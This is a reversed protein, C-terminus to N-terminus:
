REARALGSVGGQGTAFGGGDDFTAQRQQRRREIRRAQATDGGFRGAIQEQRTIVDESAGAGALPNMLESAATLQAFGTQAEDATVGKQALDIATNEALGGFGTRKAAGSLQAAAFKRELIPQALDPNLWYAVLDGPGVGWDALADRVDQPAKFAAQAALSIRDGLEALSVDGSIYKAYDSNDDHFGQPLGAARFMEAARRRYSIIEGPGMAPLGAKKRMDIEPFQTKFEPTDRLKLLIESPSLDQQVWQQVTGSLSELGYDALIQSVTAFADGRRAKTDSDDVPATVGAPPTGATVGDIVGSPGGMWSGKDGGPGGAAPRQEPFVTYYAEQGTKGAGVYTFHGDVVAYGAYNGGADMIAQQQPTFSTRARQNGYVSSTGIHPTTM